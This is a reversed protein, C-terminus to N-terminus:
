EQLAADIMILDSDSRGWLETEYMAYAEAPMAVFRGPMTARVLYSYTTEGAQLENSFFSVRDGFIEKYSYNYRPRSDPNQYEAYEHSTTNLGENLAEFGSPLKDEVLMYTGIEPMAVTLEVRVLQGATVDRIEEGSEVDIYRREIEIKGAADIEDRDLLLQNHVGYYIPRDGSQRLEIRNAGPQLDGHRIELTVQPQEASFLGSEVLEGNVWIEYSTSQDGDRVQAALLYDTLGMIAFSTENTTGWGFEGRQRMLWNVITLQFDDRDDPRLRAFASLALATSRVDSAMTKKAYYGDQQAGEWYVAGSETRVAAEALMDLILDIKEREEAPDLALALAALSFIDGQLLNIEHALMLNAEGNPYGAEALAFLAFARTRPDMGSLNENLYEAGQELVHSDIEQGAAVMQALGYLVWATQYDDSPDSYWWGWGGDGHQFGLLKHVGERIQDDLVGDLGPITLGLQNLARGIVANPLARSMTQEVCGYPYGTLDDLGQLLTGAITQALEIEVVGNPLADPPLTVVTEVSSRLQGVASEVERIALPQVALPLQIADGWKGAARPTASLTLLIEGSTDADALLPWGIVQSGGPGITVTQIADGSIISPAAEGDLTLTVDVTVAESDYNHVIASLEVRDGATLQRPLLPRVIVPQWTTVNRTAEGVQTDATTAKVTARWSTLSDPLTVPVVVEGNFDTRLVPLWVATDPFDARPNAPGAWGGGGGMGGAPGIYRIPGFSHYTDIGHQREYYFGDFIPESQEEKLAFIAEDVLALSLEASVPDGKFNTVRLTFVAEEGPAYREKDPVIEVNLLKDTAPVSLNVTARLLKGDPKSFHDEAELVTDQAQWVTLSAYINPADTTELPLDLVTIPGTLEVMLERRTTGREVTLLAPGTVPLNLSSSPSM